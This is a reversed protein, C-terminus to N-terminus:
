RVMWETTGCGSTRRPLSSVIWGSTPMGSLIEAADGCFIAWRNEDQKGSWEALAVVKELSKTATADPGLGRPSGRAM